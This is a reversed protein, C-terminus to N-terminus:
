KKSFSVTLESLEPLNKLVEGNLTVGFDVNVQNDLSQIAACYKELSLKIARLVKSERVEGQISYLISIGRLAAPVQSKDRWGEIEISFDRIVGDEEHLFDVVDVGSCGAVSMLLTELPSTGKSDSECCDMSVQHGNKNTGIFHHVGQQKEARVKIKQIM